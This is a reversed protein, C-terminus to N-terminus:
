PIGLSPWPTIGQPRQNPSLPTMVSIPQAEEFDLNWNFRQAHDHPSAVGNAHKDNNSCDENLEGQAKPRANSQLRLVGNKMM